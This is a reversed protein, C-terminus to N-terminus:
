RRIFLQCDHSVIFDKYVENDNDIHYDEASQLFQNVLHNMYKLPVPLYDLKEFNTKTPTIYLGTLTAGHQRASQLGNVLFWSIAKIVREPIPQYEEEEQPANANPTFLLFVDAKLLDGLKYTMMNEFGKIPQLRKNPTLMIEEGEPPAVHPVLM